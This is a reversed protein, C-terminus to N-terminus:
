HRNSSTGQTKLCEQILGEIRLADKEKISIFEIGTDFEEAMKVVWVVRGDCEIPLQSNELYLVLEVLSFKDLGSKLVVCVGGQGINETQTSFKEREGKKFVIVKCPYHLRPFRRKDVGQWM